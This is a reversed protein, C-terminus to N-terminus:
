SISNVVFHPLAHGPPPLTPPESHLSGKLIAYNEDCPYWNNNCALVSL